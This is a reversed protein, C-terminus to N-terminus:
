LSSFLLIIGIIAVAVGLIIGIIDSTTYQM